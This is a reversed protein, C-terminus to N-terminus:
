DLLYKARPLSQTPLYMDIGFTLLIELTREEQDKSVADRWKEVLWSRRQRIEDSDRLVSQSRAHSKGTSRSAKYVQMLMRNPDPLSLKRALHAIVIEPQLVLQEYTLMVATHDHQKLLVANQLCWDVIRTQFADGSDIIHRAVRLQENSFHSAYPLALYSALRPLQERSLAVPIPHRVIHVAMGNLQNCYCQICDEGGFLMKFIIRDTRVHWFKTFPKERKFRLDKDTDAVFTHLYSFIQKHCEPRLLDHWDALNLNERVVEKRLNLPENVIKFRGQTALLEALWTSGSRPTAFIFVNPESGQRHYTALRKIRNSVEFM